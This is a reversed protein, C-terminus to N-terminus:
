TTWRCSSVCSDFSVPNEPRAPFLRPSSALHPSVPQLALPFRPTKPEERLNQFLFQCDPNKLPLLNAVLESELFLEHPVSDIRPGSLARPWLNAVRHQDMAGAPEPLNAIVWYWARSSTHKPLPGLPSVNLALRSELHTGHLM